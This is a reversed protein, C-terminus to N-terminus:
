LIQPLGYNLESVQLHLPAQKNDILLQRIADFRGFSFAALCSGAALLRVLAPIQVFGAAGTVTIM